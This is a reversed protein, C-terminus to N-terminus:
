KYNDVPTQSPKYKYTYKRVAIKKKQPQVSLYIEISAALWMSYALLEISEEVTTKALRVYGEGLVLHWFSGMGFVRSFVLITLATTMTGFARMHTFTALAHLTTQRNKENFVFGVTLMIIATFPWYWASHAIPDLLGDLERALLCGFFGGLLVNFGKNQYKASTLFLVACLGLMVEQTIEVFSVELIRTKFVAIDLWIMGLTIGTLALKLFVEIFTTQLVKLDSNM